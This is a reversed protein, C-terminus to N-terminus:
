WGFGPDFFGAYHIRFERLRSSVRRDRPPLTECENRRIRRDLNRTPDGQFYLFERRGRLGSVRRETRAQLRAFRKDDPKRVVGQEAQWTTHYLFRSRRSM